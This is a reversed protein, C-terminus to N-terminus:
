APPEDSKEFIAGDRIRRVIRVPQKALLDLAERMGEDRQANAEFVGLRDRAHAISAAAFTVFPGGITDKIPNVTYRRQRGTAREFALRLAHILCVESWPKERPGGKKEELRAITLRAQERLFAVGDITARAADMESPMEPLKLGDRMRRRHMRCTATDHPGHKIFEFVDEIQVQRWPDTANFHSLLDACAAEIKAMWAQLDGPTAAKEERFRMVFTKVAEDMETALRDFNIDNAPPLGGAALLVEAEAATFVLGRQGLFVMTGLPVGAPRVPRASRSPM